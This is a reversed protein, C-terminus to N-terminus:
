VEQKSTSLFTLSMSWFSVMWLANLFPNLIIYLSKLFDGFCFASVTVLLFFIYNWVFCIVNGIALICFKREL